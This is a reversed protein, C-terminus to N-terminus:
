TAKLNGVMADIWDMRGTNGGDSRQGGEPLSIKVSRPLPSVDSADEEGRREEGRREEGRREQGVSHPSPNFKLLPPSLPEFSSVTVKWKHRFRKHFTMYFAYAEFLIIYLM